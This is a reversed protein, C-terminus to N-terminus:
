VIAAVIFMGFLISFLQYLGLGDYHVILSYVINPTSSINYLSSCVLQNKFVLHDDM